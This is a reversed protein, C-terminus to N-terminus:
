ILIIDIQFYMSLSKQENLILVRKYASFFRQVVTLTLHFFDGSVVFQQPFHNCAAYSGTLALASFRIMVRASSVPFYSLNQILVVYDATGRKQKINILRFFEIIWQLKM